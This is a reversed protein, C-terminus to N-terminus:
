VDKNANDESNDGCFSFAFYFFGVLVSWIGVAICPWKYDGFTM